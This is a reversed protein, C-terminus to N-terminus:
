QRQQETIIDGLQDSSVFEVDPWRKVIEKLLEKLLPINRDTNSSDISGIFNLRHACINAAKKWKFANEIRNMCDGVWDFRPRISPEFYCNRMLRVLGAKSKSGQFCRRRVVIKKDDIPIKQAITSQIYKVGNEVLAPEIRPSWTYTTAIFSKSPYGFFANFMQLGETIIKEYEVLDEELGSDFAGMYYTDISEDAEWTLGWTGLRFALLTSPHQDRLASLWKKVNLHERGHSQPRFVGDQMGQQWLRFADAHFPSNKLTETFPEFYYQAFGSDAIKEFVPNASLTNATIVAPKGNKDKVSHLAEFLRELDSATALSDFKCYPDKDVRVGHKLFEDYAAKSPMRISGWDDSEIVVLHRDTRWGFMNYLDKRRIMKVSWVM